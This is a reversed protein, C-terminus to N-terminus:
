YFKLLDSLTKKNFKKIEKSQYNTLIKKAPIKFNNYAINNESHDALLNRAEAPTSFHVKKTPSKSLCTNKVASKLLAPIESQGTLVLTLRHSNTVIPTKCYEVPSRGIEKKPLKEHMKSTKKDLSLKQVKKNLKQPSSLIFPVPVTVKRTNLIFEEYTVEHATSLSVSKLIRKNNNKNSIM